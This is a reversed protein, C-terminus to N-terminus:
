LIHGFSITISQHPLPLHLSVPNYFNAPPQGPYLESAINSSSALAWGPSYLQHHHHFNTIHLV